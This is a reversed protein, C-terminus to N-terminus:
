ILDEGKMTMRLGKKLSIKPTWGLKEKAKKIDAVVNITENKRQVNSYSVSIEKNYIEVILDAIEKVTYSEGYGINFVDYQIKNYKCALIYAEVADNIYLWDRRPYPVRLEINDSTKIQRLITPFLLEGKQSEGYINFPRFITCSIGFFKVYSRCIEEAIYKSHAYPNNPKLPHIEDIPLYAPEGYIYSSAFILRSNYRRCYELMNVTGFVNVRYFEAPDQWSNPVYLLGALHCVIKSDTFEQVHDKNTIDYGDVIDYIIVRADEKELRATIRSGIFGKGGTIIIKTGKLDMM